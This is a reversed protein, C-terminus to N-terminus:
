APKQIDVDIVSITPNKYLDIEYYNKLRNGNADM